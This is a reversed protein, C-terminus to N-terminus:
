EGNPNMARSGDSSYNYLSPYRRRWSVNGEPNYSLVLGEYSDLRGRPYLRHLSSQFETPAVIYAGTLVAFASLFAHGNGDTFGCAALAAGDGQGSTAPGVIRGVLCGRFWIKDVKGNLIYFPAMTNINLGTGLFFHGPRGHATLVLNKFKGEPQKNAANVIKKAITEMPTSSHVDLTVDMRFAQNANSDNVVM